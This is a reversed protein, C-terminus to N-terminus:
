EATKLSKRISALDMRVLYPPRLSSGQLSQQTWQHQEAQAMQWPSSRCQKHLQTALSAGHAAELGYSATQGLATLGTQLQLTCILM